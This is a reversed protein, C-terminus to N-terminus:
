LFHKLIKAALKGLLRGIGPRNKDIVVDGKNPQVRMSKRDTKLNKGNQREVRKVDKSPRVTNNKRTIKRILDMLSNDKKFVVSLEENTIYQNDSQILDDLQSMFKVAEEKNRIKEKAFKQIAMIEENSFDNDNGNPGAIPTMIEELFGILFEKWFKKWKGDKFDDSPSAIYDICIITPEVETKIETYSNAKTTLSFMLAFLLLFLLRNKLLVKKM